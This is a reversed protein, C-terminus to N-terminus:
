YDADADFGKEMAANLEAPGFTAPKGDTASRRNIYLQAYGSKSSKKAHFQVGGAMVKLAKKLEGLFPRGNAKRWDDVDFGLTKLDKKLIGISVENLGGGDKNTLWYTHRFTKACFPGDSVVDFSLDVCESGTKEIVKYAGKTLQFEYEGDPLAKLDGNSGGGVPINDIEDEYDELTPM